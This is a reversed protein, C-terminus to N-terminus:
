RPRLEQDLPVGTLAAANEPRRPGSGRAAREYTHDLSAVSQAIDFGAAAIRDTVAPAHNALRTPLSLLASAWAEAGAELPLRPTRGPVAAAEWPVRDSLLCALGAAQAEVAVLGLGEYLSPLMFGDMASVMHLAVTRCDRIFTVRSSLGRGVVELVSGDHLSGDGILLFHVSHDAACAASMVEILFGHNKQAEFRGVHGIVRRGPPIGLRSRLEPDPAVAFSALDVGCYLLRWRADRRWEPGFMSVAALESVAFGATALSRIAIHGLAAYARYGRGAERLVPQIDTHSHAIRARIGSMTALLMVFGHFQTGHTHLIDFPGESDLLRRFRRAFRVPNTHNPLAHVRAGAALYEATFAEQERTWVMVHHEHRVPDLRRVVQYLWTEIGGRSLHGVSHLIRLRRAPAPEANM